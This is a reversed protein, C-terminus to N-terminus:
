GLCWCWEGVELGELGGKTNWVVYSHRLKVHVLLRGDRGLVWEVGWAVGWRGNWSSSIRWQGGFTRALNRSRDRQKCQSRWRSYGKSEDRLASVEDTRGTGPWIGGQGDIIQLEEQELQSWDWLSMSKRSCLSGGEVVAQRHCSSEVVSPFPPLPLPPSCADREAM